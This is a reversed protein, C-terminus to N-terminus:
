NLIHIRESLIQKEGKKEAGKGRGQKGQAGAASASLPGAAATEANGSVRPNNAQKETENKKQVGEPFVNFFWFSAM